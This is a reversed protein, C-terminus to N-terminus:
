DTICNSTQDSSLVLDQFVSSNLWYPNISKLVGDLTEILNEYNKGNVMKDPAETLLTWYMEQAKNSPGKKKAWLYAFLTQKETPTMEAYPKASIESQFITTQPVSTTKNSLYESLKLVTSYQRGFIRIKDGKPEWNGELVQANVNQPKQKSDKRGYNFGKYIVFTGNDRIRIRNNDCATIRESTISVPQSLFSSFSRNILNAFAPPATVKSFAVAPLVLNGQDDIFRIESILVDKYQSGPYINKITLTLNTVKQLPKAFLIKQPEMTDKVKLVQPPNGSVELESVRGNAKFHTESRQYGNWIMIGKLDLPVAFQIAFAGGIGNTKKGDTSWAMDYKSDFMQAPQYASTPELISNASVSAPILRPIALPIAQNKADYFVIRNIKLPLDHQSHGNLKIFVSKVKGLSGDSVMQCKPNKPSDFPGWDIPSAGNIFTQFDLPRAGEPACVEIQEVSIPNQLQIYIGEDIGSDLSAPSWYGQCRPDLLCTIPSSGAGSSTAAASLVVPPTQSHATQAISLLLMVFFVKKM